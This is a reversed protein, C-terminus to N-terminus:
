NFGIIFLCVNNVFSPFDKENTKFIYFDRDVKLNVLSKHIM